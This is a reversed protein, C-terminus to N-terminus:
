PGGRRKDEKDGVPTIIDPRPYQIMSALFCYTMAHLTDDTTGPTKNVVTTRRAENYETFVALLDASFPTEFEEWSPLVFENGRNIANIVAMLAETRNVMFRHLSKDFYIKRTNVYQYRAIRRIGYARILQDNRDFGGGYDVGVIQPKYKRILNNVERMTNEPEAEEGEFRKFYFYHFKDRVYGGVCLSTYTNEGTGWDIGMYVKNKRAVGESSKMTGGTCLSRLTDRNIPKEGSDYGLGLVENYFQANNYRKKKDLIDGWEIWPCM